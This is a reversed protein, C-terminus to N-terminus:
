SPSAIGIRKMALRNHPTNPCSTTDYFSKKRHCKKQERPSTGMEIGRELLLAITVYVPSDPENCHPLPLRPHRKRYTLEPVTCYIPTADQNTIKGLNLVK